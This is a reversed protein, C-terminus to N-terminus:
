CFSTGASSRLLICIDTAKQAGERCVNRADEPKWCFCCDVVIKNKCMFLLIILLELDSTNERALILPVHSCWPM